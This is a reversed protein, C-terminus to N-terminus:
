LKKKYGLIYTKDKENYSINLGRSEFIRVFLSLPVNKMKLSLKPNEKIPHIIKYKLNYHDFTLAVIDMLAIGKLSVTLWKEKIGLPGKYRKPKKRKQAKRRNRSQEGFRSNEKQKYKILFKEFVSKREVQHSLAEVLEVANKCLNSEIDISCLKNLNEIMFPYNDNVYAVHAEKLLKKLDAKENIRQNSSYVNCIVCFFIVISTLYNNM